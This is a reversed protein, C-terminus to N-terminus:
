IIGATLRSPAWMFSPVGAFSWKSAMAFGALLINFNWCDAHVLKDPSTGVQGSKGQRTTVRHSKVRWHADVQFHFHFLYYSTKTYITFVFRGFIFSVQENISIFWRVTSDTSFSQQSPSERLHFCQENISLTQM